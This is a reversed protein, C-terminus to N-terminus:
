LASKDVAGTTGGIMENAVRTKRGAALSLTDAYGVFVISLVVCIITQM